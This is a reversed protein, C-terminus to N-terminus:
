SFERDSCSVEGTGNSFHGVGAEWMAGCPFQEPSLTHTGCNQLHMKAYVHVLM